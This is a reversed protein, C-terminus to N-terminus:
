AAESGLTRMSQCGRARGSVGRAASMGRAGSVRLTRLHARQSHMRAWQSSQYSSVDGRAGPRGARRQCGGTREFNAPTRALARGSRVKTSPSMGARARVDGRICAGQCGRTGQCGRARGQSALPRSVSLGGRPHMRQCGQAGRATLHPSPEVLGAPASLLFCFASLLFCFATDAELCSGLWRLPASHDAHVARRRGSPEAALPLRWAEVYAHEPMGACRESLIVRYLTLALSLYTQRNDRAGSVDRAGRVDRASAHASMGARAQSGRARRVNGRAGSM